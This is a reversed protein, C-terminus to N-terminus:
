DSELNINDGFKAYLQVKLDSLLKEIEGIEKRISAIEGELKEVTKELAVNVKEQNMHIFVEGVLFRYRETTHHAYGNDLFYCLRAPKSYVLCNWRIIIIKVSHLEFIPM